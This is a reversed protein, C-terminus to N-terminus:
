TGNKDGSFKCVIDDRIDPNPLLKSPNTTLVPLALAARDQLVYCYMIQSFQKAMAIFEAEGPDSPFFM